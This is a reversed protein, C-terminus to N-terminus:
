LWGVPTSCCGAKPSQLYLLVIGWILPAVFGVPSDYLKSSTHLPAGPPLKPFYNRMLTALLKSLFGRVNPIKLLMLMNPIKFSWYTVDNLFSKLYLAATASIYVVFCLDLVKGYIWFAKYLQWQSNQMHDMNNILDSKFHHICRLLLRKKYQYLSYFLDQWFVVVSAQHCGDSFLLWPKLPKQFTPWVELDLDRPWFNHYWTVPRTM